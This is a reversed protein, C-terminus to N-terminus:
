FIFREYGRAELIKEENEIIVIFYHKNENEWYQIYGENKAVTLNKSKITAYTNAIMLGSLSKEIVKPDIQFIFDFEIKENDFMKKSNEWSIDWKKESKIEDEFDHLDFKENNSVYNKFKEQIEKIDNESMCSDFIEKNNFQRILDKTNVHSDRIREIELFSNTWYKAIQINKDATIVEHLGEENKQNEKTYSFFKFYKEASLFEKKMELTERNIVDSEEVKAIKISKNIKYIFLLSNPINKRKTGSLTKQSECLKNAINNFDEDSFKEFNILFHTESNILKHRIILNKSKEELTDLIKIANGSREDDVLIEKINEGIEYVKITKNM